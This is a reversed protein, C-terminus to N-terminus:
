RKRAGRQLFRRIHEPLPFPTSVGASFNVAPVTGDSCRNPIALYTHIDGTAKDVGWGAIEGHNNVGQAWLLYMTSDSAVQTNLDVPVGNSWYVPRPNGSPDISIGVIEGEENIGSGVSAVDGPLTGLDVMGRETTWLFAHTKYFPTSDNQLSSAGVVQKRNNIGLAANGVLSGLNGLDHPVGDRDWLVAHPGFALPPIATNGCLGSAGVAEGHDNMWLALSVTDNGLPALRRIDRNEPGWIVGQFRLKQAPILSGCTDDMIETEALGAIQGFSNVNGVTSNNGGLAPLNTFKGWQWVAATCVRHTGYACFDEGNPDFSASEKQISVRGLSNIGFASANLGGDGLWDLDIIHDEIWVVPHQYGDPATSVGAIMGNNTLQGPQSFSSGPLAGLDKVVYRPPNSQAQVVACLSVLLFNLNIVFSARLRMPNEKETGHGPTLAHRQEALLGAVIAPMHAM